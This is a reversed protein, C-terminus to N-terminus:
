WTKEDYGVAEKTDIFKYNDNVYQKYDDFEEQLMEKDSDLDEILAFLDEISILDENKYYKKALWEPMSETRILIDEM